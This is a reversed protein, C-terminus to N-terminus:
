ALFIFSRVGKSSFRWPNIVSEYHTKIEEQGFASYRYSEEIEFDESILEAM